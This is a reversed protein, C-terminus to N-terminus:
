RETTSTAEFRQLEEEGELEEIEALGLEKGSKPRKTEVTTTIKTTTEPRETSTRAEAAKREEAEIKALKRRM